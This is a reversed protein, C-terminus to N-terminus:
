AVANDAFARKVTEASTRYTHGDTMCYISCCNKPAKPNFGILQFRKGDLTFEKNYDDATFGYFRCEQEFLIRKGDTKEDSKTVHMKMEFNVDEYLIKGLEITVGHKKAVEQLAANVDEKFANFGRKNFEM